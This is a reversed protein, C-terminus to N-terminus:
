SADYFVDDCDGHLELDAVQNGSDTDFVLLRAPQRCGVFARHAADDLAMPFNAGVAGRSWRGIVRKTQREAVAVHHAEPVNVFVRSGGKELQFSEPHADLLIDGTITNRTSDIVAIAGSGHGVLIQAAAPDYRVNDADDKLDIVAVEAFTGGDLVRLAGDGGNAVYLRHLEAVYCIGQPEAFGSISSVVKGQNLDVVEVTNNGLAAVFLRGGAVDLAFHDIRGQVRPLPIVRMLTMPDAMAVVVSAGLAFVLSLTKM